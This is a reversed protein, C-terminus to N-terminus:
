AARAGGNPPPGAKRRSAAALVRAVEAWLPSLTGPRAPGHDDGRPYSQAQEDRRVRPLLAPRTPLHLVPEGGGPPPTERSGRGRV